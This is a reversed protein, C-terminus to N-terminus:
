FQSVDIRYGPGMTTSLYIDKIYIGKSSAPKLRKLEAIFSALNETIQTQDM